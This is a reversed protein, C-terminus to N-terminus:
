TVFMSIFCHHCCIYSPMYKMGLKHTHTHRYTQIHDKFMPLMQPHQLYDYRNGSWKFSTLKGGLDRLQIKLTCIFISIEIRFFVHKVKKIIM